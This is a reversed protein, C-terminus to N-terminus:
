QHNRLTMLYCIELNNKFQTIKLKPEILYSYRKAPTITETTQLNGTIKNVDFTYDLKVFSIRWIDTNESYLAVVAADAGTDKLHKAIFNRQM